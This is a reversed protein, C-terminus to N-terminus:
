RLQQRFFAAVRAWVRETILPDRTYIHTVGPLTMLEFPRGAKILAESLKLSHRYYVNDDASGHVLLLPRRLGPALPILSAANYNARSAPLTGLYRETYCSDYDEWDTVPAGAVAAQFVDPRRLVAQASMYGGFSWGFIGVHRLNLEPLQRGLAKLGAVQDQLPVSGFRGLVATEFARERGPTGRNDISVVVYGQDALWQDVLWAGKSQTVQLHHPGGYVVVVVPYNRGARFARPRVVGASLWLSGDPNKLHVWQEKVAAPESAVKPLELLRKGDRYVTTVPLHDMTHSTVAVLNQGECFALDVVGHDPFRMVSGDRAVARARPDGPGADTLLYAVDRKPDHELYRSLEEGPLLDIVQSGQVRCLREHGARTEVTLFSGDASFAPLDQHVNVWANDHQSRLPTLAPANGDSAEFCTLNRQPRDLLTVTLPEGKEWRVGALYEWRSPPSQDWELWRPAEATGVRVLGLRARVNPKGPRPYFQHFPAVEPHLPDSINWSEVKRNDVEEFAIQRSDPAWWYGTFRDLEEQAVFEAEGHSQEVTGGSTLALEKGSALNLAYVDHNRVYSVMTGDPSWKADFVPGEIPLPRASGAARDLVYPVTGLQLLIREGSRDLWYNAIGEGLERQRERRAKEEPSLHEQGGGLLATPDVLMRTKGSALDTEFLRLTRKHSESRLFLVSKGDPSFKVRVPRGLQFGRTSSWERLFSTDIQPSAVPPAASGPMGLLVLLASVLASKRM